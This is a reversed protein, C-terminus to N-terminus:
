EKELIKRLKQVAAEINQQKFITTGVVFANAGANYIQRINEFNIGGDVEIHMNENHVDAYERLKRIREFTEPIFKQGGFGPFVSMILIMDAIPVIDFVKEIPTDPNLSVGLKLGENKIIDVTEQFQEIEVHITISDAGADKFQQIYQEPNTIMLHADLFLDTVSNVAKSIYSGFSINPVFHGDMIDLHIWDAGGREVVKIQSALYGFDSNLISPAIILPKKTM